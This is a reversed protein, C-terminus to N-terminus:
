LVFDSQILTYLGDVRIFEEPTSAGTLNLAIITDGNEQFYRVQHQATFVNNGVFTFDWVDTSGNDGYVSLDIKDGAARSFNFIEDANAKSSGGDGLAFQFKDAGGGGFLIDKGFGGLIVDNGGAGRLTDAGLGGFLRNALGNGAITDSFASGAVDEIDVLRDGNADGGTNVNTTLDVTVAALSDRYTIM